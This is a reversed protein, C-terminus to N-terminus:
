ACDHQESEGDGRAPRIQGGQVYGIHDLMVLAQGDGDSVALGSGALGGYVSAGVGSRARDPGHPGPGLGGAKRDPRQEPRDVSM